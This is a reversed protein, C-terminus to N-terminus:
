NDKISVDPTMELIKTNDNQDVIRPHWDADIVQKIDSGTSDDSGNLQTLNQNEINETSQLHTENQVSGYPVEILLRNRSIMRSTMRRADAYEPLEYSNKIQRIVCGYEEQKAEVIIKGKKIKTQVANQDFGAVDVCICFKELKTPTATPELDKKNNKIDTNESKNAQATKNTSSTDCYCDWLDCDSDCDCDSDSCDLEDCSSSWFCPSYVRYCAM